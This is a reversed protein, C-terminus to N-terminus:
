IKRDSNTQWDGIFRIYPISVNRNMNKSKCKLCLIVEIPGSMPHSEEQIAGCKQCQYDYIAM